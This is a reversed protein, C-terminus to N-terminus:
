GPRRIGWGRGGASETLWPAPPFEMHRRAGGRGRLGPDDLSLRLLGGAYTGPLPTM